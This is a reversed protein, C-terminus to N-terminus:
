TTGTAVVGPGPQGPGSRLDDGPSYLRYDAFELSTGRRPSTYSGPHGGLFEKRTRLRLTELQSLFRPNFPEPLM